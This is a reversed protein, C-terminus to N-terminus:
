SYAEMTSDIKEVLLLTLGLDRLRILWGWLAAQDPFESIWSTEGAPNTQITSEPLWALLEKGLTGQIRIHYTCRDM